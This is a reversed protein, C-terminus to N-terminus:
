RAKPATDLKVVENQWFAIETQLYARLNTFHYVEVSEPPWRKLQEDCWAVTEQLGHITSRFIRQINEREEPTRPGDSRSTDEIKKFISM